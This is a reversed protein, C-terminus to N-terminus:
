IIQRAYEKPFRKGDKETVDDASYIDPKRWGQWNDWYEAHKGAIIKAGRLRNSEGYWVNFYQGGIVQYRKM